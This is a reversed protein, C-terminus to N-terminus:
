MYAATIINKGQSSYILNSKRYVNCPVCSNTEIRKELLILKESNLETGDSLRTQSKTFGPSCYM